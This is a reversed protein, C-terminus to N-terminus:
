LSHQTQKQRIFSNMVSGNTRSNTSNVSYNLTCKSPLYKTEQHVKATTVVALLDVM